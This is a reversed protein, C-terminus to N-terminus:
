VASGEEILIRKKDTKIRARLGHAGPGHAMEEDEKLIALTGTEPSRTM